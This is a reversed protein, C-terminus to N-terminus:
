IALSALRYQRGGAKESLTTKRFWQVSADTAEAVYGESIFALPSQYWLITHGNTLAVPDRWFQVLHWRGPVPADVRSGIGAAEIADIPSWPRAADLIMLDAHTQTSWQGDPRLAKLILEVAICCNTQRQRIDPITRYEWGALYQWIVAHVQM